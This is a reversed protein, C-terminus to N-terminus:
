RLRWVINAELNHVATPVNGNMAPTSRWGNSVCSVAANDLREVGSPRVVHVNTITGDTSIDYAIGTTGTENLRVSMEPYYKLSCDHTHGVAHPPTVTVQAPPPPRNSVTIANTAPAETTINIEPPPVFPPPPKQLEPPPPPPTKDLKPTEIDAKIDQPLATIIGSKLGVILAAILGVHLIGVVVLAGLRRPTPAPLISHTRLDHSAHEM